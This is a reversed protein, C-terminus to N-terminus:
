KGDGELAVKLRRPVRIPKRSGLSIFIGSQQATTTVGGGAARDAELHRRVGAMRTIEVKGVRPEAYRLARQYQVVTELLIPSIGDSIMERISYHPELAAIRMDELRRFYVTNGVIGAFDIDYTKTEIPREVKM